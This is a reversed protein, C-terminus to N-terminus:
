HFSCPSPKALIILDRKGHELFDTNLTDDGCEVIHRETLHPCTLLYVVQFSIDFAIAHAPADHLAQRDHLSDLVATGVAVM